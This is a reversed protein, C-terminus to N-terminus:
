TQITLNGPFRFKLKGMTGTTHYGSVRSAEMSLSRCCAVYWPADFLDKLECIILLPYDRLRNKIGDQRLAAFDAYYIADSFDTETLGTKELGKVVNYIASVNISVGGLPTYRIRNNDVTKNNDDAADMDGSPREETLEGSPDVETTEIPVIEGDDNLEFEDGDFMEWECEGIGSDDFYYDPSCSDNHLESNDDIFDTLMKNLVLMCCDLYFYEFVNRSEESLSPRM